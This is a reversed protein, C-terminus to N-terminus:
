FEADTYEQIFVRQPLTFYNQKNIRYWIFLLIRSPGSEHNIWIADQKGCHGFWVWEAGGVEVMSTYLSLKIAAM